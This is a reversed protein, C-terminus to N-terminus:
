PTSKGGRPTGRGGRPTGRTGGGDTSRPEALDLRVARGDLDEGALATMAKNAQQSSAFEAYGFSFPVFCCFLIIGDDM